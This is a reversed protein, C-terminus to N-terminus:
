MVNCKGKGKGKGRGKELRRELGRGGGGGVRGAENEETDGDDVWALSTLKGSDISVGYFKHM